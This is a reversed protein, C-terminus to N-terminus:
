SSIYSNPSDQFFTGKEGRLYPPRTMRQLKRFPPQAGTPTLSEEGLCAAIPCSFVTKLLVQPPLPPTNKYSM